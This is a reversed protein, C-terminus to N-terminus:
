KQSTPNNDYNNIIKAARLKASRSRPNQKIEEFIPSIPKKTLIEMIGEKSKERFYNKVIRDELSNFSIIAARGGIKLIRGLSDLLKKLNDLEQNAYIRLALFTRTAPHIRGREYNRPLVKAVIEALQKNTEIPSRSNKIAHAIRKAMHEEGYEKIIEALEPENLQRILNKVPVAYRDYTMLLPEEPGSFSFGRGATLQESSFGLDLLLGDAKPLNEKELIDPLDAYNSRVLILKSKTAIKEKVKELTTEDLDTGLLMGEPGIKELIAVSHGGDGVTGDIFFEGPKPDLVAIIEKLLVPIHM